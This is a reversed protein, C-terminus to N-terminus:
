QCGLRLARHLPQRFESGPPAYSGFALRPQRADAEVILCITKKAQTAGLCTHWFCNRGIPARSLIELNHRYLSRM